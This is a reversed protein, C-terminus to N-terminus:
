NSVDPHWTIRRKWTLEIGRARMRMDTPANLLFFVRPSYPDARLADVTHFGLSRLREAQYNMEFSHGGAMRTQHHYVILCRGPQMLELLERLLISKGSAKRGPKFGKPELGNDPDLFVLDAAELTNQIRKFWRQREQVRLHTAVNTVPIVEGSFGSFLTNPPLAQELALVSRKKGGVIKQLIKFLEPDFDRWPTPKELYTIHRGDGNHHEDPYLWWAIGLRHDGLLARLIALKVYDGIDGVYRNQM